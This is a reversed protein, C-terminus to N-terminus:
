AGAAQDRGHRWRRVLLFAGLAPAAAALAVPLVFVVIWITATAVWQLAALTSRAAASLVEVPEWPRAEGGIAGFRPMSVHVRVTSLSVLDDLTSVRGEIQEIEERVQRIREFVNLLQEAGAGDQERVTVLLALLEGEYARLNRLRSQLDTYQGTIDDTTIMQSRVSMALGGIRHLVDDLGEAPVRIVIEGTMPGEGASHLDAGAVFGGSRRALAGIEAVIAEPDDVVVSISADRIIRRADRVELGAGRTGDEADAADDARIRDGPGGRSGTAIAATDLGSGNPSEAQTADDGSCGAIAVLGVAVLVLALMRIPRFRSPRRANVSRAM